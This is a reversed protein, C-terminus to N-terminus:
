RLTQEIADRFATMRLNHRRLASGRDQARTDRQLLAHLVTLSQSAPQLLFATTSRAGDTDESETFTFADDMTPLARRGESDLGGALLREAIATACSRIAISRLTMGEASQLADIVPPQRSRAADLTVWVFGYREVCLFMAVRISGPVRQNPQAPIQVCRADGTAFRWGHYQCQLENGINFGISLRVGRHPCRDEWANVSGADDRWLVLPQDLLLM